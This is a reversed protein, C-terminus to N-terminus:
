DDDDQKQLEKSQSSIIHRAMILRSSEPMQCFEIGTFFGEDTANSYLVKGYLLLGMCSEEFVLKMALYHDSPLESQTNFSLGGESLNIHQTVINDFEVDSAAITKAITDVKTNIIELVAALTPDKQAVKRLLYSTDTDLEQLHTLLMFFPSVEFQTPLQSQKMEAESILKYDLSVHQNIRFYQRREQDLVIGKM